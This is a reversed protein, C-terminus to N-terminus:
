CLNKARVMDRIFRIKPLGKCFNRLAQKQLASKPKDEVTFFEVMLHALKQPYLTFINPCQEFVDPVKRYKKLDRFVIGRKLSTEYAALSHISFDGRKKACAVAEGACKGSAMALNTGEKYLSMNVLGASDGVILLGNGCLDGIADLGGEPVLHASYELLTGGRVLPKVRPHNKFRNLLDNPHLQQRKLTDARAVCGVHISDKATYIFGGGIIDDFPSGFYDFAAGENSTLHFRDDIIEKSLGIIEKVGVGYEQTRRGARMSLEERAKQTLLANAGEALVVVDAYFHEDGRVKVGVVRKAAATGEYLLADAVTGELVSAGAKEVEGSFWRDFQSRHVIFTNNFPPRSWDDAGFGVAFHESAGLYTVSRKSVIREIPASNYFQPILQNLVTGYLLGGVNKAGAYAGRELLIVELGAKAMTFAAALGAPGGGVVIADVKVKDTDSSSM